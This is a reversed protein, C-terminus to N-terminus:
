PKKVYHQKSLIEIIESTLAVDKQNHFIKKDRDILQNDEIPNSGESKLIFSIFILLPLQFFLKKM